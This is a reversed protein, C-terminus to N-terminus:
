PMYRGYRRRYKSDLEILYFAGPCLDNPEFKPYFPATLHTAEREKLLKAFADPNVKLRAFMNEGLKENGDEGVNGGNQCVTPEGRCKLLRTGAKSIYTPKETITISFLTAIAGSGYSFMGVKIPFVPNLDLGNPQSHQFLSYM